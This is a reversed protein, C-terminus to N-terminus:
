PHLTFSSVGHKITRERIDAMCEKLNKERFTGMIVLTEGDDDIIPIKYVDSLNDPVITDIKSTSIDKLKHSTNCIPLDQIKGFITQTECLFCNEKSFNLLYM